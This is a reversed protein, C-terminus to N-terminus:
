SLGGTTTEKVAMTTGPSKVTIAFDVTKHMTDDCPLLARSYFCVRVRTCLLASHPRQSATPKLFQRARLNIRLCITM